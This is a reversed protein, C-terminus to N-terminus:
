KNFILGIRWRVPTVVNGCYYFIMLISAPFYLVILRTFMTRRNHTQHLNNHNLLNQIKLITSKKKACPVFFFRRFILWKNLTSNIFVFLNNHYIKCWFVQNLHLGFIMISTNFFGLIVDILIQFLYFCQTTGFKIPLSM